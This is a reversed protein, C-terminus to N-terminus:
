IQYLETKLSKSIWLNNRRQKKNSMFIENENRILEQIKNIFNLPIISIPLVIEPM